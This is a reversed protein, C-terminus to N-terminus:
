EELAIVGLSLADRAFGMFFFQLVIYLPQQLRIKLHCIPEPM